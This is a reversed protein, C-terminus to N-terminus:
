QSGLIFCEEAYGGFGKYAPGIIRDGVAHGSNEGVEVVKGVANMGPTFPADLKVQYSGQCQLIDAFNLDVAEVEIRCVGKPATPLTVEGVCLNTWPDGLENMQWAKM